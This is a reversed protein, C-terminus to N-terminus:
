KGGRTGLTQIESLSHVASPCAALVAGAGLNLHAKPAKFGQKGKPSRELCLSGRIVHKGGAWERTKSKEHRVSNDGCGSQRHTHM